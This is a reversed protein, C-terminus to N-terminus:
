VSEAVAAALKFNKEQGISSESENNTGVTPCLRKNARECKLWKSLKLKSNISQTFKKALVIQLILVFPFDYSGDVICCINVAVNMEKALTMTM